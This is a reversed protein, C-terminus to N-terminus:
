LEYCVYRNECPNGLAVHIRGQAPENIVSFCTKMAGRLQEKAEPGVHRCISGPFDHHDRLLRQLTEVTYPRGEEELLRKLREYRVESDPLGPLLREESLFEPHLYHNTHVLFGRDESLVAYSQVTTEVDAIGERDAVIYNLSSAITTRDLLQLWDAVSTGEFFKRMLFFVPVGIRFGPSLLQNITMGLGESNIGVYAIFGAFSVMLSRPGHEPIRRVMFSLPELSPLSDVNQGLFPQRTASAMASIAFGTCGQAVGSAKSFVLEAFLQLSFAEGFCIGAGDAIGRVEELLHPSFEEVPVVYAEAQSAIADITLPEYLNIVELNAQLQKRIQGQCAKGFQFGMEYPSGKVEIVPLVRSKM